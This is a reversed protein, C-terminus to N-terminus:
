VAVEFNDEGGENLPCAIHTPRCVGITEQVIGINAIPILVVFM